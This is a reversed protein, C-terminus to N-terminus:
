ETSIKAVARKLWALHQPLAIEPDALEPHWKKEWEVCVWGSYRRRALSELQERVPVEGEGLMVLQWDASGPTRRRADKVHVHVLRSGLADVVEEPTEGVRYPHHSDWLAGVYPSAVERLVAATRRASSFADHTEIAVTVQAREAAPAAARLAAVVWSNVEGDSPASGDGPQNAGGFVRLLPVDVAQALEIWRLLIAVQAERDSSARLNFRCSTDLACVAIGRGRCARVAHEVQGRDAVPDIVNGDLLRWEIGDYGFHVAADVVQDVSWAPCALTS